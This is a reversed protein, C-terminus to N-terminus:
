DSDEDDLRDPRDGPKRMTTIDAPDQRRTALAHPCPDDRGPM